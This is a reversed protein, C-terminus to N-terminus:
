LIGAVLLERVFGQAIGRHGGAIRLVDTGDPREEHAAIGARRGCANEFPANAEARLYVIQVAADDAVATGVTGARKGDFQGAQFRPGLIEILGIDGDPVARILLIYVDQADFPGKGGKGATVIGASVIRTSVVGAASVVRATTVVRAASVVRASAAGNHLAKLIKATIFDRLNGQLVGVSAAAGPILFVATGFPIIVGGGVTVLHHYRM